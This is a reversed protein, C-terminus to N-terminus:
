SEFARVQGADQVHEVVLPAPDGLELVGYANQAGHLFQPGGKTDYDAFQVALSWADHTVKAATAPAELHDSSGAVETGAPDGLKGPCGQGRSAAVM